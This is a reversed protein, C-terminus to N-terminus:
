EKRQYYAVVIGFILCHLMYLATLLFFAFSIGDFIIVIPWAILMIVLMIDWTRGKARNNVHYYREDYRHNKMGVKRQIFFIMLMFIYNGILLLVVWPAETFEQSFM